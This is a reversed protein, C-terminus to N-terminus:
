YTSPAPQMLFPFPFAGDLTIPQGVKEEIAAKIIDVGQNLYTMKIKLNLYAPRRPEKPTDLTFATISRTFSGDRHKKDPDTFHFFFKM